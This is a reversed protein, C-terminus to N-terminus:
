RSVFNENKSIDAFDWELIKGIQGIDMVEKVLLQHSTGIAYGDECVDKDGIISWGIYIQRSPRHHLM